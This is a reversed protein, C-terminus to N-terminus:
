QLPSSRGVDRPAMGFKAKFANCFHSVSRFGASLAVAKVQVAGRKALLRERCVTLRRNRLYEGLTQESDQFVKHLYRTSIGCAAAIREPSLQPDGLQAEVIELCRRYLAHRVSSQGIPVEPRSCDLMVATLDAIRGSYSSALHEPLHARERLVSALFDFTIRAAGRDAAFATAVLDDVKGVRARLMECPAKLSLVRVTDDHYYRHPANLDFLAFCGPRVLCEQGSQAIHLSGALPMVLVFSERKDGAVHRRTRQADEYASSVEALELGAIEAHRIHGTFRSEDGLCLDLEGFVSSILGHWQRAGLATGNPVGTETLSM